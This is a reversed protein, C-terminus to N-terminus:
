PTYNWRGAYEHVLQKARLAERIDYLDAHRKAGIGVERCKENWEEQMLGAAGAERLIHYMTQQDMRVIPLSIEAALVKRLFALEADALDARAAVALKVAAGLQLVKTKQEQHHRSPRYESTRQLDFRRQSL